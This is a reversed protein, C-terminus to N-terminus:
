TNGAMEGNAFGEGNFLYFVRSDSGYFQLMNMRAGPFVNPNEDGISAYIGLDDFQDSGHVWIWAAFADMSSNLRWLDNSFGFGITKPDDYSDMGYTGGGFIFDCGTQADVFMSSGYRSGANLNEMYVGRVSPWNVESLNPSGGWWTWNYPVMALMLSPVAMIASVM